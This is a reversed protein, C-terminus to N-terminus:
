TVGIIALLTVLVTEFSHNGLGLLRWTEIGPGWFYPFYRGFVRQLLGFRPEYWVRKKTVRNQAETTHTGYFLTHYSGVPPKDIIPGGM